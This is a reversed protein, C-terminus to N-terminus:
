NPTEKENYSEIYIKLPSYIKGTLQEAVSDAKKHVQRPWLAFARGRVQCKVHQVFCATRVWLSHGYTYMTHLLSWLCDRFVYPIEKRTGDWETGGLRIWAPPM